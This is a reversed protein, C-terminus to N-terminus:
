RPINRGRQWSTKKMADESISGLLDGSGDEAAKGSNRVPTSGVGRKQSVSLSEPSLEMFQGFLLAVNIYLWLFPRMVM